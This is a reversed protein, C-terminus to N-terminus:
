ERRKWWVRNRLEHAIFCKGGPLALISILTIMLGVPYVGHIMQLGQLNGQWLARQGSYSAGFGTIPHLLILIFTMGGAVIILSYPADLSACVGRFPM